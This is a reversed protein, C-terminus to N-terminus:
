RMLDNGGLPIPTININRGSWFNSGGAINRIEHNIEKKKAKSIPIPPETFNDVMVPPTM